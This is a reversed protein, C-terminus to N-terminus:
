PGKKNLKEDIAKAMMSHLKKEQREERKKAKKALKMQELTLKVKIEDM